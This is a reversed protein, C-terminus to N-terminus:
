GAHEKSWRIIAHQLGSVTGSVGAAQRPRATGYITKLVNYRTSTCCCSLLQPPRLLSPLVRGTAATLLVKRARM